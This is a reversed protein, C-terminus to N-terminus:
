KTVIDALELMRIPAANRHMLVFEKSANALGRQIYLSNYQLRDHHFQFAESRELFLFHFNCLLRM